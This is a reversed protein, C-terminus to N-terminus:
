TPSTRARNWRASSRWGRAASGPRAVSRLARYRAALAPPLDGSGSRPSGRRHDSSASPSAHAGQADRGVSCRHGGGSTGRATDLHPLVTGEGASARGTLHLLHRRARDRRRAAAPSRRPLPFPTTRRTFSTRVFAGLWCLAARDAGVGPATTAARRGWRIGIVTADPASSRSARRCGSAPLCDSAPRVARRGPLRQGAWRRLSRRRRPRGTSRHCRALCSRAHRRWRVREHKM